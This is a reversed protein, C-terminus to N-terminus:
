LLMFNFAMLNTRNVSIFIVVFVSYASGTSFFKFEDEFCFGVLM